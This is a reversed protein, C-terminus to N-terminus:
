FGEKGTTNSGGVVLKPSVSSYAQVEPEDEVEKRRKKKKLM